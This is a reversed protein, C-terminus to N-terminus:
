VENMNMNMDMCSVCGVKSFVNLTVKAQVMDSVVVLEAGGCSCRPDATFKCLGDSGAM